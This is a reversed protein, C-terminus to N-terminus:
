RTAVATVFEGPIGYSGDNRRYESVSALFATEVDRRTDLSFRKAALAVAGADIQASLLSGESPFELVTTHRREGVERLGASAMATSLAGPVGLSFFLPCVESKVQADVIPFIDAWGCNRREGWLTVAVRGGPKVARRMEVLAKIPDPSYMLGLACLAADFVGDEIDLDESEMRATQVSDLGLSAARAATEVIMEGAIDTALLSGGPAILGAAQSTVLGTGCAVELVRMGPQLAAMDLLVSHASRLNESWACDYVPAAADWGYRQLRHQLKADM